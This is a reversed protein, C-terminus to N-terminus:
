IFEILLFHFTYQEHSDSRHIVLSLGKITDLQSNFKADSNFGNNTSCSGFRHSPDFLLSYGGAVPNGAPGSRGNLAGNRVECPNVNHNPSGYEILQFQNLSVGDTIGVYPDGDGVPPNMGITVRILSHPTFDGLPSLPVRLLEENNAGTGFHITLDNITASSDIFSAYYKM